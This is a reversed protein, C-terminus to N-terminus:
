ALVLAFHGAPFVVFVLWAERDSIPTTTSSFCLALRCSRRYVVCCIAAFVLKPTHPPPTVSTIILQALNSSFRNM